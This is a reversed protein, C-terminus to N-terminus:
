PCTFLVSKRADAICLHHYSVGKKLYCGSVQSDQYVKLERETSIYKPVIMFTFTYHSNLYGKVGTLEFVTSEIEFIRM